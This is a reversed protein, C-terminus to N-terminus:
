FPATETQFFIQETFLAIGTCNGSCGRGGGKKASKKIDFEDYDFKNGYAKGNQDTTKCKKFRKCKDFIARCNDFQMASWTMM